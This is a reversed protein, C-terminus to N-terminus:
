ARLNSALCPAIRRHICDARLCSLLVHAGKCRSLSGKDVTMAHSAKGRCIQVTGWVHNRDDVCTDTIGHVEDDIVFGFSRM